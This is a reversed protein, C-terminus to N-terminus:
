PTRTEKYGFIGALVAAILTFLRGTPNADFGASVLERAFGFSHWLPVRGASGIEEILFHRDIFYYAAFMGVTAIVVAFLANIVRSRGSGFSVAKGVAAGMAIALYVVQRDTTTVVLYWVVGSVVAAILGYIVGLM